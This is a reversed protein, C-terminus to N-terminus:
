PFEGSPGARVQPTAATSPKDPPTARRSVHYALSRYLFCGACGCRSPASAAARPHGPADIRPAIMPLNNSPLTASTVPPPRPTPRPMASANASAPAFTTTLSRPAVSSPWNLPSCGACSTTAFIRAAPPSAITSPPETASQSAACLITSAATLVKPRMSMTILLAPMRRSTINWRMLSGSNSATIATCRFPLKLTLRAAAGCKLACPLPAYTCM